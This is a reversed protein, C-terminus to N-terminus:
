ALAPEHGTKRRRLWALGILASVFLLLAPPLPVASVRIDFNQGNGVVDAWSVILYKTQGALFSTILAAGSVLEATTLSAFTTGGGDAQSNWEATAGAFGNGPPLQPNQNLSNTEVGTLNQTATFAFAFSGGGDANNGDIEAQFVNGISLSTDINDYNPGVIGDDALFDGTVTVAKAGSALALPTLALIVVLRLLKM